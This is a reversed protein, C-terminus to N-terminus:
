EDRLAVMPDISSARRAPIYGASISVGGLLLVIAGFTAPDTPETQFLLAAISRSVALSGIAGVVLGPVVLRLSRGVISSRVQAASAGLAMRIGIEQRQRTVGYSIVGYIGLSALVLGLAAFSGVLAVFFRRSSVSRDVVDQLPELAAAPQGPNIERLARMVETTLGELPRATRIVIQAGEPDAQAVPQFMECAVGSEVSQQRVDAVVGVVLAETKPSLLAIRGAADATGWHKKAGTENVIVALHGNSGDQWTFDRGSRLRMGMAPVYGPTVVRIMCIMEDESKYARGKSALGWSRNRGLPLMDSFGAATVGPISKVGDIMRQIAASREEPTRADYDVRIAAAREPLFGLDVDLVRLFSRLLLGSGVLLVCALAVESIVLM